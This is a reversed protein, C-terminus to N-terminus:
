KNISLSGDVVVFEVNKFAPNVNCFDASSIGMAYTGVNVASVSDTAYSVFDETTYLKSNIEVTYGISSQLEGNYDVTKVNGKIAVVVKNNCNNLASVTSANNSITGCSCMATLLFLHRILKMISINLQNIFLNQKISIRNNPTETLRIDMKGTKKM